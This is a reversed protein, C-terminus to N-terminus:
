YELAIASLASYADAIGGSVSLEGFLAATPDNQTVQRIVLVPNQPNEATLLEIWLEAQDQITETPQIMIQMPYRRSTQLLLDKMGRAANELNKSQSIILAAIGSVTPAAMSTGNYAEYNNGPTTSYIQFGPAFVDVQKKGYNSFPAAILLGSDWTSAGVEIWNKSEYRGDRSTDTPFNKGLDNNSASNGAAHVLLVGKQEAYAVAADVLEKGPSYEKGFSMNIVQAGNDVAYRIANAVDKDREDGDPVARIAMIKVNQAIGKIGIENNRNAAIIGAVHTGHSADPGIVDNNGYNKETGNSYDDGVISRPDFTPNYNYNLQGQFYEVAGAISVEDAGQELYNLYVNRADLVDQDISVLQQLSEISLDIIGGQILIEKATMIEDLIESYYDANDQAEKRKKNVKLSVEAFLEQEAPSLQKGESQLQTQLNSLRVYERTVELTDHYVNKGDAGGIFNWGNIDDVYGNKDDDIKNNAIEGLNFWIKGLLDEHNVDVGSDIVAVIVENEHTLKLKEYAEHSQIGEYGDIPSLHHWEKLSDDHAYAQSSKMETGKANKFTKLNHQKLKKPPVRDFKNIIASKSFGLNASLLGLVLLLIKM